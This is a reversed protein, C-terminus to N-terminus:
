KRNSNQDLERWCIETLYQRFLDWNKGFLKWIESVVSNQEYFVELKKITHSM